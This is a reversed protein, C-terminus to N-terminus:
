VQKQIWISVAYRHVATVLAVKLISPYHGNLLCENFLKILNRTLATKRRKVFFNSICYVYWAKSNNLNSIILSTEDETVKPCFFPMRINFKKPTCFIRYSFTSNYASRRGVIWINLCFLWSNFWVNYNYRNQRGVKRLQWKLRLFPKM